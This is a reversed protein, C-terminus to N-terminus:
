NTPDIKSVCQFTNIQQTFDTPPPLEEIDTILGFLLDSISRISAVSSFSGPM